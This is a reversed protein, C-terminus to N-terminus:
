PRHESFIRGPIEATVQPKSFVSAMSRVQRMNSWEGAWKKALKDLRDATPTPTNLMVTLESSDPNISNITTLLDLRVIMADQNALAPWAALLIPCLITFHIKM